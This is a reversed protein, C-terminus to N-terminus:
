NTAQHLGGHLLVHQNGRDATTPLTPRRAIFDAIVDSCLRLTKVIGTTSTTKEVQSSNLGSAQPQSLSELDKSRMFARYWNQLGASACRQQSRKDATTPPLPWLLVRRTGHAEVQFAEIFGEYVVARESCTECSKGNAKPILTNLCGVLSGGGKTRRREGAPGGLRSVGRM